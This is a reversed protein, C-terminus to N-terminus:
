NIIVLSLLIFRVVAITMLCCNRERFLFISIANYLLSVGNDLLLGSKCSQNFAACNQVLDLTPTITANTVPDMLMGPTLIEGVATLVACGGISWVIAVYVLSTLLIALFTGKPIASSPNQL